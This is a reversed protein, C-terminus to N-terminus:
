AYYNVDLSHPHIRISHAVAVSLSYHVLKQLPDKESAKV